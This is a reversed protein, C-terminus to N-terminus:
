SSKKFNEDPPSLWINEVLWKAIFVVAALMLLALYKHEFLLTHYLYYVYTFCSPLFVLPLIWWRRPRYAAYLIAAIEGFYYYREHMHPLIFPAFLGCFLFLLLVGERSIERKTALVFLALLVYVALLLLIGYIKVQETVEPNGQKFFLAYVSPANMYPEEYQSTQASLVKIFRTLPQGTLWAPVNMIVLAAFSAFFDVANWKKYLYLLFLFPLLFIAQIKFSLAIGFFVMAWFSSNKKERIFFYLTMLLFFATISDCQAWISSNAFFIPCFMALAYAVIGRSEKGSVKEVTKLAANGCALDFVCSVIKVLGMWDEEPFHSILALFYMYPNYYDTEITALALFNGNDRM